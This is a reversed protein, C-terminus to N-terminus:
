GISNWEMTPPLASRSPAAWCASPLTKAPKESAAFRVHAVLIAALVAVVYGAGSEADAANVPAQPLSLRSASGSGRLRDAVRALVAVPFLAANTYSLKDIKYGAREIRERLQGRIAADIICTSTM